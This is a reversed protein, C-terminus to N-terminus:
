KKEINKTKCKMCQYGDSLNGKEHSIDILKQLPIDHQIIHDVYNRIREGSLSQLSDKSIIHVIEDILLQFPKRTDSGLWDSASRLRLVVEDELNRKKKDFKNEKYTEVGGIIGIILLIFLLVLFMWGLAIIFNEM